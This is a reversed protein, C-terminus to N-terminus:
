KLDSVSFHGRKDISRVLYTFNVSVELNGLPGPCRDALLQALLVSDEVDLQEHGVKRGHVM